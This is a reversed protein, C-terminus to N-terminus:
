PRERTSRVSALVGPTGAGFSTMRADCRPAGCRSRVTFPSRSRDFNGFSSRSNRVRGSHEDHRPILDRSGHARDFRAAGRPSRWKGGFASGRQARRTVMLFFLPKTRESAGSSSAREAERAIEVAARRAQIAALSREAM